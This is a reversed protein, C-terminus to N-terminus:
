GSMCGMQTGLGVVQDSAEGKLGTGADADLGHTARSRGDREYFPRIPSIRFHEEVFTFQSSRKPSTHLDLFETTTLLILIHTIM